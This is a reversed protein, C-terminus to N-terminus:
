QRGFVVINEHIKNFRTYDLAYLGSIRPILIRLLIFGPVITWIFELTKHEVFTNFLFCNFTYFLILVFVFLSIGYALAMAYDHVFDLNIGAYSLFKVPVIILRLDPM